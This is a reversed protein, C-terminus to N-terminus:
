RTGTSGSSAACAGSARAKSSCWGGFRQGSTWKRLCGQYGESDEHRILVECPKIRASSWGPRGLARSAPANRVAQKYESIHVLVARTHVLDFSAPEATETAIDLRRVELNPLDFADLYRTELDVALVRGDPGVRECLWRAMSGAGAGVELCSWGARVPLSELRRISTPDYSKALLELRRFELEKDGKSWVYNSM